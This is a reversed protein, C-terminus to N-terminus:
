PKPPSEESLLESRFGEIREAGAKEIEIEDYLRIPNSIVLAMLCVLLFSMGWSLERIFTTFGALSFVAWLAIWAGGCAAVVFSLSCLVRLPYATLFQQHDLDLRRQLLSEVQPDPHKGLRFRKLTAALWDMSELARLDEEPTAEPLEPSVTEPPPSGAASPQIDEAQQDGGATNNEPEPAM